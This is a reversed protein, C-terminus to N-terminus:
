VVKFVWVPQNALQQRVKEPITITMGDAAKVVKLTQKAGLITVVVKPAKSM